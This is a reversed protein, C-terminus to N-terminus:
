ELTCNNKWQYKKDGMGKINPLKSHIVVSIRPIYILYLTEFNFSEIKENYANSKVVM